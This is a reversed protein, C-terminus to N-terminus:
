KNEDPNRWEYKKGTILELSYAATGRIAKKNDKLMELLMPVASQAKMEGLYEIVTSKTIEDTKTDKLINILYDIEGNKKALQMELSKLMESKDANRHVFDVVEKYTPSTNDDVMNFLPDVFLRCETINEQAMKWFVPILSKDKMLGIAGAAANSEDEDKSNMCIELLQPFVNRGFKAIICPEYHDMKGLKSLLVPIAREDGLDALVDAAAIGLMFEDRDTKIGLRKFIKKEKHNKVIDILEPVAERYKLEGIKQVAIGKVKANGKKLHKHFVKGLRPDKVDRFSEILAQQVKEDKAEEVMDLTSNVDKETKPIRRKIREFLREQEWHEKSKRAREVITKLPETKEESTEPVNMVANWKATYEAERAKQETNAKEIDTKSSETNKAKGEEAYIGLQFLFCGLFMLYYITRRM